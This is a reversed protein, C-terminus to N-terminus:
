AARKSMAWAIGDGLSRLSEGLSKAASQKANAVALAVASAVKVRLDAENVSVERTSRDLDVEVTCPFSASGRVFCISVGSGAGHPPERTVAGFLDFDKNPWVEFATTSSGDYRGHFTAATDDANLAAAVDVLIEHPTV